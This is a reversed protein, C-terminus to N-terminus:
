PLALRTKIVALINQTVADADHDADIVACREPEAAAISLFGRAIRAMTESGMLEYRDAVRGRGALRKKAVSESVNMMLSLDPILGILRVLAAIGGVDMGM